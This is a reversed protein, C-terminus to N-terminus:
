EYNIQGMLEYMLDGELMNFPLTVYEDKKRPFAPSDNPANKTHGSIKRGDKKIYPLVILRGHNKSLISGDNWLTKSSSKDYTDKTFKVEWQLNSEEYWFVYGGCVLVKQGKKLADALLSKVSALHLLQNARPLLLRRIEGKSEGWHADRSLGFGECIRARYFLELGKKTLNAKKFWHNSNDSDRFIIMHHRTSVFVSIYPTLKLQDILSQKISNYIIEIADFDPIITQSHHSIAAHYMMMEEKILRNKCTVSKFVKLQLSLEEDPELCLLSVNDRLNDNLIETYKLAEELSDFTILSDDVMYNYWKLKHNKKIYLGEIIFKNINSPDYAVAAGLLIFSSHVYYSIYM